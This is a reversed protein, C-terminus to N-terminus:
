VAALQPFYFNGTCSTNVVTTTSVPRESLCQLHSDAAVAVRPADAFLLAAHSNEEREPKEAPVM